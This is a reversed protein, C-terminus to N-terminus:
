SCFNPGWRTGMRTSFHASNMRSCPRFSSPIKRSGPCSLRTFCSLSAKSAPSRGEKSLYATSVEDGRHGAQSLPGKDVLPAIPSAYISGFDRAQLLFLRKNQGYSLIQSGPAHNSFCASCKHSLPCSSPSPGQLDTLLYTPYPPLPIRVWPSLHSRAWPARNSASSPHLIASSAPCVQPPPNPVTDIDLPESPREQSELFTWPWSKKSIQPFVTRHLESSLESGKPLSYLSVDHCGPTKGIEDTSTAWGQKPCKLHLSTEEVRGRGGSCSCLGPEERGQEVPVVAVVNSVKSRNHLIQETAQVRKDQQCSLAMTRELDAAWLGLNLSGLRFEWWDGFISIGGPAQKHHLVLASGPAVM